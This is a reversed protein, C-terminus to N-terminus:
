RVRIHPTESLGYLNSKLNQNSHAAVSFYGLINQILTTSVKKM